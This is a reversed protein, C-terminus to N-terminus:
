KESTDGSDDKSGSKLKQGSTCPVSCPNKDCPFHSAKVNIMNFIVSVGDSYNEPPTDLPHM